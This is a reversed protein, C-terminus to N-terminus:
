NCVLEIRVYILNKDENLYRVLMWMIRRSKVSARKVV